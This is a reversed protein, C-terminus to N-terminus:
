DLREVHVSKCGNKVGMELARGWCEICNTMNCEEDVNLGFSGPCCNRVLMLILGDEITVSDFIGSITVKYRSM